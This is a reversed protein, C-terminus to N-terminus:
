QINRYGTTMQEEQDELNFMNQIFVVKMANEIFEQKTIDGDGDTDVAELINATCAQFVAVFLIYKVHVLSKQVTNAKFHEIM